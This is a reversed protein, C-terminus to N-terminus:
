VTIKNGVAFRRWGPTATDMLLCIFAENRGLFFRWGSVRGKSTSGQSQLLPLTNSFGYRLARRNM